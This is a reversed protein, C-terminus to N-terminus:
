TAGYGFHMFQNHYPASRRFVPEHSGHLVSMGSIEPKGATKDDVLYHFRGGFVEIVM